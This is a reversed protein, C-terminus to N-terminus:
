EQFFTVKEIYIRDYDGEGGLSVELLIGSDPPDERNDIEISVCDVIDEEKETDPFKEGSQMEITPIFKVAAEKTEFVALVEPDTEDDGGHVYSKLQIAFVETNTSRKREKKASTPTRKRSAKAKLPAVVNKKKSPPTTYDGFNNDSINRKFQHHTDPMKVFIVTTYTKKM